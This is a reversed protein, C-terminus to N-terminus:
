FYNMEHLILVLVFTSMKLFKGTVTIALATFHAELPVNPRLIIIPLYLLDGFLSYDLTRIVFKESANKCADRQSLMLLFELIISMSSTNVVPDVERSYQLTKCFAQNM